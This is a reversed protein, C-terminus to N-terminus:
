QARRRLMAVMGVGLLALAGPEPVPAGPQTGANWNALVTNLDEIGVLNDGNIDGHLFGGEYVTSNWHSLVINVDNVGVFGDLDLDGPLAGMLEYLLLSVDLNDHAGDSNLDVQHDIIYQVDALNLAPVIWRVYDALYLPSGDLMFGELEAASVEESYFLDQTSFKLLLDLQGDSNIDEYVGVNGSGGRVLPAASALRLSSVDIDHVDHNAVGYIIVPVVGNSKVNVPNEESGYKIDLEFGPVAPEDNDIEDISDDYDRYTPAQGLVFERESHGQIWDLFSLMYRELVDGTNRGMRGRQYADQSLDQWNSKPLIGWIKWWENRELFPSTADASDYLPWWAPEGSNQPNYEDYLGMWHGAEHAAVDAHGSFRNSRDTFFNGSDFGESGTHVEVRVDPSEDSEVWNVEFNIPYRHIGDVIEYQGSWVDEIGNKWIARLNNGDPDVAPDGFLHVDLTVKLERDDTFEIDYEGANNMSSLPLQHPIRRDIHDTNIPSLPVQASAGQGLETATVYRASSGPRLSFDRQLAMTVDYAADTILDSDTGDGYITNDLPTGAIIKSRLGYYADVEFYSTPISGGQARIGYFTTPELPNDGSDFEYLQQGDTRALTSAGGRDNLTGDFYLDADAYRTLSFTSNIESLNTISYDQILLSGSKSGSPDFRDQVSQNLTFKLDDIYFTSTATSQSTNNFGRSPLNGSSGIGGEALFGSFSSGRFHVASEFTTGSAGISGIPNFWANDAPGAASGFGGYADLIVRLGGDVSESGGPSILSITSGLTCSYTSVIVFFLTFTLFHHKQPM